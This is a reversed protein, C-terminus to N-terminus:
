VVTHFICYSCTWPVTSLRGQEANDYGQVSASYTATAWPRGTLEEVEMATYYNIQNRTVEM